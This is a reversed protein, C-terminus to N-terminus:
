AIRQLVDGFQLAYFKHHLAAVYEFVLESSMRFLQVLERPDERTQGSPDLAAPAGSKVRITCLISFGSAAICYWSEGTPRLKPKVYGM